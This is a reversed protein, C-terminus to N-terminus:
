QSKAKENKMYIRTHASMWFYLKELLPAASGAWAFVEKEQMRAFRKEEVTTFKLKAAL